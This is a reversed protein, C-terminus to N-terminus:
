AQVVGLFGKVLIIRVLELIVADNSDYVVHGSEVVVVDDTLLTAILQLNLEDLLLLEFIVRDVVRSLIVFSNGFDPVHLEQIFLLNCHRQATIALSVKIPVLLSNM